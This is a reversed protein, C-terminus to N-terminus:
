DNGSVEQWAVTLSLITEGTTNYATIEACGLLDTSSDTHLVTLTLACDSPTDFHHDHHIVVDVDKLIAEATRETEAYDGRSLKLVEAVTQAAMVARDREECTRSITDSLVFARLCLAAALAFVLVMIIQEMLALPTKSRM